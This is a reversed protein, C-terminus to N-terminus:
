ALNTAYPCVECSQDMQENRSTYRVGLIPHNFAASILDGGRGLIEDGISMMLRNPLAYPMHTLLDDVAKDNKISGTKACILTLALAPVRSLMKGGYLYITKVHSQGIQNFLKGFISKLTLSNTGHSFECDWTSLVLHQDSNKMTLRPIKQSLIPTIIEIVLDSDQLLSSPPSLVITQEGLKISPVHTPIGNELILELKEQIIAECTQKEMLFSHDSLENM